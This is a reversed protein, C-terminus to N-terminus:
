VVSQHDCNRQKKKVPEYKKEWEDPSFVERHPKFDKWGLLQFVFLLLLMVLWVPITVLLILYVFLRRM